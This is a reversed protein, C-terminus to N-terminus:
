SALELQDKRTFQDTKTEAQQLACRRRREQSCPCRIKRPSFVLSFRGHMCTMKKEKKKKLNSQHIPFTILQKDQKNLSGDYQQCVSHFQFLVVRGVEARQHPAHRVPDGAPPEGDPVARVVRVPVVAVVRQVAAV